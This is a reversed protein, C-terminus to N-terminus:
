PKSLTSMFLVNNAWYLGGGGDPLIDYTADNNYRLQQINLIRGSDLTDGVRYESLAKMESTPHSPSATITRGDDLTIKLIQFNAPVPTWSVKLVPEAVQKGEGDRTWVLQGIHLDEVQVSGDPTDILTGKALCIPCTNISTDEKLVKIVGFASITGQITKGQNKGTRITFNYADDVATVSVALTVKKHEQYITLKESDSYSTKPTLNLQALIAAFELTNAQISAIEAIANAQEAGERAIPYYDPDCWFYDPYASLLRYALQYQDMKVPPTTLIPTSTTTTTTSPTKTSCAALIAALSLILFSIWVIRRM